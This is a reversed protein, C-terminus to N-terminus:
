FACQDRALLGDGEEAVIGLHLIRAGTQGIPDVSRGVVIGADPADYERIVDGFATRVTAVRQGKEVVERLKPYVELLGGRDTYMWSSSKCIVPAPCDELEPPDILGAYGMAARIGAVGRDTYREQWVHPNGIEVTIAPIGRAMAAGRLTADSARNHVVIESRQLYALEATRPDRMDARIYLSNVRGFSATHLDLLYDFSDVIRELIRHAYVQSINGRPHGPMIRNLDAGDVFSRTKNLVGPVNLAVAAVVTGKLSSPDLLEFLDHIVPIGNLENGHLCATVGFVPGEHEGRAVLCPVRIGSGLGDGVLEVFVRHIGPALEEVELHNVVQAAAPGVDPDVPLAYLAEYM